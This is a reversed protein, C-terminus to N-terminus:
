VNRKNDRDDKQTNKMKETRIMDERILSIKISNTGILIITFFDM